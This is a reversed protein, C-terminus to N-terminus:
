RVGSLRHLAALRERTLDEAAQAIKVADGSRRAKKLRKEADLIADLNVNNQGPSDVIATGPEPNHRTYRGTLVRRLAEDPSLRGITPRV